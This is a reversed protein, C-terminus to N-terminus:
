AVYECAVVIAATRIRFNSRLQDVINEVVSPDRKTAAHTLNVLRELRQNASEYFTDEGLYTVAATFLLEIAPNDPRWAAGGEHTQTRTFTNTKTPTNLRAM